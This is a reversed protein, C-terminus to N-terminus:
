VGITDVNCYLWTDDQNQNKTMKLDGISFSSTSFGGNGSNSKVKNHYKKLGEYDLFQKDPM